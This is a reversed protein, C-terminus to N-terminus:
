PQAPANVTRLTMTPLTLSALLRSPHLQYRVKKWLLRIPKSRSERRWRTSVFNRWACDLLWKM